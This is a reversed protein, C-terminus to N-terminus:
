RWRNPRVNGRLLDPIRGARQNSRGARGMYPGAPWGRGFGPRFGFGFGAPGAVLYSIDYVRTRMKDPLSDKTAIIIIGDKVVYDLRAFGSSVAMLLLELCTRLRIGGSFGDIKIPTDREVNANESLDRWLVVIKLPPETSNCLLEIAENFTTHFTLASLDATHRSQNYVAKDSRGTGAVTSRSYKPSGEVSKEQYSIKEAALAETDCWGYVCVVLVVVTSIWHKKMNM